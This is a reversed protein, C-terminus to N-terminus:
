EINHQHINFVHHPLLITHPFTIYKSYGSKREIIKTTSYILILEYEVYRISLSSKLYTTRAIFPLSSIFFMIIVIEQVMYILNTKQM